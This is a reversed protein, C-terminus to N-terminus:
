RKTLGDQLMGMLFRRLIRRVPDRGRVYAVSASAISKVRRFSLVNGKLKVKRGIRTLTATVLWEASSLRAVAYLHKGMRGTRAELHARSLHRLYGRGLESSTLAFRVPLDRASKVSVMRWAPHAGLFRVLVVHRGIPLREVTAPALGYYRGDVYVRAGSPRSYVSLKGTRTSSLAARVTEFRAHPGAGFLRRNLTMQPHGGLVRGFWRTSGALDGRLFETAGLYCLTAAWLRQDRPTLFGLARYFASRATSLHRRARELRVKKFFSRGQRYHRRGVRILRRMRYPPALELASKIDVPRVAKVKRVGARLYEQVRAAESRSESSGSFVLLLVSPGPRGPKQAAGRAVGAPLALLLTGLLLSRCIWRLNM